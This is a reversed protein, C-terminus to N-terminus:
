FFFAFGAKWEDIEENDNRSTFVVYARYEARFMFRRTIYARVGLGVYGVQDTRDEEQGLTVNPETHIIGTGLTFIPSARWEPVFTHTLGLTGLYSNSFEGLVHEAGLELSLQSNFALAGYISIVSAGGFDGALVGAEWRHSTFQERSGDNFTTQEGGPQLTRLMQERSVWGERRDETRVKFWDTRRKLVEVAAGREVVHFVPYGRGPGTHLEIYPDAVVVQAYKEEAARAPGALLCTVLLALLPLWRM